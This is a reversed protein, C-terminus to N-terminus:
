ARKYNENVKEVWPSIACHFYMRDGEVVLKCTSYKLKCEKCAYKRNIVRKRL